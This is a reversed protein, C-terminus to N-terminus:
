VQRKPEKFYEHINGHWIIEQNKAASMDPIGESNERVIELRPSNIDNNESQTHKDFDMIVRFKKDQGVPDNLRFSYQQDFKTDALLQGNDAFNDVKLNNEESDNSECPMESQNGIYQFCSISDSVRLIKCIGTNENNTNAKNTKNSETKSLTTSIDSDINDTIHQPICNSVKTTNILISPNILTSSSDNIVTSAVDQVKYEM